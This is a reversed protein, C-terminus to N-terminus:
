EEYRKKRVVDVENAIEDLSPAEISKSRLGQLLNSIESNSPPNIRILDLAELDKILSMAKPNLIEINISKM